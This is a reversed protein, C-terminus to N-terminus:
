YYIILLPFISYNFLMVQANVENYVDQKKILGKDIHERLGFKNHMVVMKEFPCGKDRQWDYEGVLSNLLKEEKTKCHTLSVCEGETLNIHLGMDLGAHLARGISREINPGNVM